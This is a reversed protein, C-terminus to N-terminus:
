FILNDGLRMIRKLVTPSVKENASALMSLSLLGTSFVLVCMFTPSIQHSCRGNRGRGVIAM